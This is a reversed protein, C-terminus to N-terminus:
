VRADFFMHWFEQGAGVLSFTYGQVTKALPAHEIQDFVWIDAAAAVVLRCAEYGVCAVLTVMGPPSLM